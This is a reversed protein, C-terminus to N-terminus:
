KTYKLVLSNDQLYNKSSKKFKSIPVNVDIKSQLANWVRVSTNGFSKEYVNINSRNIYLLHKQRTSYKHVDNNSVYLDNIAPPLLNNFYKYMMIGIRNYVLKNLPLIELKKFTTASSIGYNTFSILRIVKKQIKYLQDLHCNSANGWAEICYIMYPYIYSYYLTLLSKRQLYKSAKSMIGIGKSIKNKIYTIHHVWSIPDDIIVGLYKLNNAKNLNCDGMQLDITTNHLKLRARHFIIYYTKQVNLTLKNSQLWIYLLHLEQNMLTILNELSKGDLTVCTDDAYLITFLFNSVNFIDNMYIIFLLPGLISGQPVGYKIPLVKSEIGDYTVYQSRDTLYSQFWKLTNGRIGYSFLKKTLIQHDVTDFAKKLDLFVGIVLDGSDLSSTIRDVLTIIAHQTSHKKRFGFQYKYIIDNKYLFNNVINYMLKEFIKSFFSLISIPRYNSMKTSDGSKFIPVVKALKLESPFVGEMFSMNIIYTLPEIFNDICQNAVFSPIGDFGPSSNKLSSIVTRVDMCIVNPVVISNAIGNVYTLPDKSCTINSALTPGISVFFNNFENAIVESDTVLTNNINFTLKRKSNTSDKGIILRLIKWSKSLDNKHLELENSYYKIETNRLESIIENRCTKYTKNLEKNNPKKLAQLGLKNKETIKTRLSNTMWPYRNRYTITVAQKIFSEKFYYDILTQFYTYAEQTSLYYINGWSEKQM